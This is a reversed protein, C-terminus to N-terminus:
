HFPPLGQKNKLRKVGKISAKQSAPEASHCPNFPVSDPQRQSLDVGTCESGVFNVVDGKRIDMKILDSLMVEILKDDEALSVNNESDKLWINEIVLSAAKKNPKGVLFKTKM